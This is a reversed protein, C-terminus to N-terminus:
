SVVCSGRNALCSECLRASLHAVCTAYQAATPLVSLCALHSPWVCSHLLHAGWFNCFHTVEPAVWRPERTLVELQVSQQEVLWVAAVRHYPLLWLVKINYGLHEVCAV